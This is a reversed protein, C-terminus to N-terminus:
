CVCLRVRVCVCALLTRLRMLGKAHALACVIACICSRALVCVCLHVLACGCLLSYVPLSGRAPTHAPTHAPPVCLLTRADMCACLEPVCVIVCRGRAALKFRGKAHMCVCRGWVHQWTQPRWKKCVSQAWACVHGASQMRLQAHGKVSATTSHV